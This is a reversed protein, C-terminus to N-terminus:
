VLEAALADLIAMRRAGADAIFPLYIKGREMVKGLMIQFYSIAYFVMSGFYVPASRTCWNSSLILRKDFPM